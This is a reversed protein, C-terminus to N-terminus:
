RDTHPPFRRMGDLLKRYIPHMSVEEVADLVEEAGFWRVARNEDPKARVPETGDDELLYTVNLHLHAPVYAGRKRHAGVNLIELSFIEASVPRVNRIGSEEQAERLAVALLDADGDAHGGLWAWSRYLNHYAMLVRTRTPDTIWCSATLHMPQCSRLLLDPFAALCRLITQRDQEEQECTPVYAEVSARIAETM